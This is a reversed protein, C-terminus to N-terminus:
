NGGNTVQDALYQPMEDLAEARLLTVFNDDQLLQKVASTVFLLRMECVKAKKVLTRQRTMEKQYARM